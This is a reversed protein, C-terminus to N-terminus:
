GLSTEEDGAIDITSNKYILVLKTVDPGLIRQPTFSLGHFEGGPGAYPIIKDLCGEELGGVVMIANELKSEKPIYLQLKYEKGGYMYSTEIFKRRGFIKLHGDSIKPGSLGSMLPGMHPMVIDTIIWPYRMVISFAFPAISLLIRRFILEVVTGCNWLIILLTVVYTCSLLIDVVSFM